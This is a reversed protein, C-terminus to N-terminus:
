AVLQTESKRLEAIRKTLEVNAAKAEASKQKFDARAQTLYADIETQNHLYFAISGYIQELTLSPFCESQITEPTLGEYFRSVILDLLIRTGLIYYAGNRQEIYNESDM